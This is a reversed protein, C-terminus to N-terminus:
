NCIKCEPDSILKRMAEGNRNLSKLPHHITILRTLYYSM